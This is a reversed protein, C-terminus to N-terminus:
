HGRRVHVRVNPSDIATRTEDVCGIPATSDGNCAGIAEAETGYTTSKSIPRVFRYSGNASTQTSSVPTWCGCAQLRYLTVQIGAVTSTQATLRGALVARHHRRDLRGTLTLQAPLPMDSRLEYTTSADPIGSADPSSVFARWVYVAASAPNTVHTFRLGLGRVRSGLPWGGPSALSALPLCSQLKYAGLAAEDASTPDIYIPVALTKTSLEFALHMTWVAAHSGPACAQAQPTNVYAAPDVAKLDGFAFDAATKMFAQGEKTGPPASADFGYGAPVYLTVKGVEASAAPATVIVATTSKVGLRPSGSWTDLEPQKPAAVHVSGTSRVANTSAAGAGAVCGAVLVASAAAAFLLKVNM